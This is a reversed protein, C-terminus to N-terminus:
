DKQYFGATFGAGKLPLGPAWDIPAAMVRLIDDLQEERDVECIVEDHVHFVVPIGAQELGILTETLCDRAIAQTCNHVLRFAKTTPDYVTFRNRPGCNMIDYVRSKVPEASNVTIRDAMRPGPSVAAHDRQDRINRVMRRRNKERRRDGGVPEFASQAHEGQTSGMPLKGPQLWPQQGASGIGLRARLQQGYRELVGRLQAAVKRLRNNWARRLEELSQADTRHMTAEDLAMDCLGPASEYRTHLEDGPNEADHLMRVVNYPAGKATPRAGFGNDPEWLRMPMDVEAEGAPYEAAGATYGDPLSVAAWQHGEGDRGHIWGGETLIRHEPTMRLGDVLITNRIGKYLRLGHEVFEEGDWIRMKHTIAEIPVLGSDTLVLTDGALCNEALKGGWTDVPGWKKTKQLIGYYHLSTKDPHLRASAFHPKVYFLKRGTPLQVTLFRQDTEADGEMRFIIGHPLRHPKATNVTAIVAEEYTRWLKVINPNAARWRNKIDTLDDEPIGMKVAGMATLAGEGGGYGLALTAIKGRQRLESNIGHKEVPVGFMQSATACYIDKGARFSDLVWQQDALYALVRCEIASFDAVAYIKGTSPVFMTRILQSLTDPISEGYALKLMEADGKRVLERAFELAPLHNQPLNQMQVLRGAWRGSRNAGYFMSIGRIRSDDCVAETIATYKATSTKGLQQRLQLMRNVKEDPVGDALLDAVTAKRVDELDADMKDNLWNLLQVRSNPNALGTLEQAEALLADHEKDAIAIANQVLEMDVGVGRANMRIDQEWLMQERDPLPWKSLRREIERETVVDQANYEKFLKWKEPEQAPRCRTFPRKVTPKQPICFLRILASGTKLKTKDPPLGMAEGSAALGSTYGCYMGHVMTCRWQHLPLDTKYWQSLCWWEFAANYAHFINDTSFLLERFEADSDGSTLDLVTVPGDEVAYAILLIEFDPALAYKYAGAKGIDVSSFTEIDISVNM